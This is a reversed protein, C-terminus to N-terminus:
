SPDRRCLFGIPYPAVCLVLLAAGGVVAPILVAKRIGQRRVKIVRAYELTEETGAKQRVVFTEDAVQVIQGRLTKGSMVTIQVPASKAHLTRVQEKTSALAAPTQAQINPSGAVLWLASALAFIM